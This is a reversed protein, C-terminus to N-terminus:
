QRREEEELRAKEMAEIEEPTPEEEKKKKDPKKKKGAGEEQAKAEIEEPTLERKLARGNKFQIGSIDLTYKYEILDTEQPQWVEPLCYMGFVEVDLQLEGIPKQIYELLEEKDM